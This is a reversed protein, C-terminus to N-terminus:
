AVQVYYKVENDLYLATMPCPLTALAQTYPALRVRRAKHLERMGDHYQGVTLTPVIALLKAYVDKMTLSQFANARKQAAVMEVVTDIWAVAPTAVERNAKRTATKM